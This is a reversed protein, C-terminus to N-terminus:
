KTKPIIGGIVTLIALILGAVPIGTHKMPIKTTKSTLNVTTSNTPTVPDTSNKITITIPNVSETNLNYTESSINSSFVYVGSNINKGTIYLYPDGILVNTLTWTITNTKKNYTWNDNGTIKSVIFSSPLPITLTVNTANDPGKNGLKYTITFTEGVKTDKKSSSIKLYLYAAPNVTLLGKGVSATYYNNGMFNVNVNYNGAGYPIYNITAIGNNNTNASYNHGNVSFFLTQVALLNGYIDTLVAVLNISQNDLVTVNKVTITTPTQDVTLTNTNTSNAYNTVEGNYIANIIYNGTNWNAPITWNLIAIGNTVTATGVNVGNVIFNVQGENVPNGYYDSVHSTLTVNQGPFNNVPNVTIITPTQNVKLQIYVTQNDTTATINGMGSTTATFIATALGNLTKSTPNITGNTGTWSVLVDDPIHGITPDLAM